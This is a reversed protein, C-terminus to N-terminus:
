RYRPLVNIKIQRRVLHGSEGQKVVFDLNYSGLFGAGLQWYFIGKESDLTSGIPLKTFNFAEGHFHIEIRELERTAIAIIGKRDSSITKFGASEDNGQAVYVSYSHELPLSSFDGKFSFYRSKSSQSRKQSTNDSSTNQVNFYRSGIGDSNGASDKATWQITHIGDSFQTTDLVFYGAAGSSNYYGPFLTEIDSRNINYNPHGVQVGDVYVNLTSGDTLILNPMPTLVWGWNIFSNGSADGGQSPTDIAGFPKIANANDCTITKSGLTVEKGYVDAAIAYIKFTGNGSNPLFNTLMMYGWGAKYNYPYDPYSAEIDPRAGEVFNADGIYVLASGEGHLADRYIKVSDVGVDDLVWGTVAISSMVTSNDIPTDFSGFPAQNQSSNKITLLVNVTQPSDIALPDTVTIAAKYTGASLGTPDVTVTVVSDGTNAAPDFSLWEAEDVASWNLSGTGTNSVRFSQSPPPTQGAIYGFNLKDRSVSLIPTPVFDPVEISITDLPGIVGNDNVAGIKYYVTTAYNFGFDTHTYGTKRTVESSSDATFDPTYGRYIVFEKFDDWDTWLHDLDSWIKSSWSLNTFGSNYAGSFGEVKKPTFMTNVAQRGKNKVADFFQKAATGRNTDKFQYDSSNSDKNRWKFFSIVHPGGNYLKIMQDYITSVSGLSTSVTSPIVEPNYELAAWNGSLSAAGGIGYQTTRSYYTGYNIDYLTVGLGIDSYVDATWMPSSSAYYRANLNPFDAPRKGFLYDGPIQHTFYQDNPFGSTRAIDAMDKVYHYVSLERFTHWLDYFDDTGPEQMVRPPDFGGAIYNSGSSPKLGNYSYQSVPIINPDPNDTDSYDADVLDSLSWNYYRLDWSSFSTGFDANFNALGSAGQYRSGGNEYGEGGYKESDAYLGEHKIWDRFEMVTFPSYDCFYDQLYPSSNLRYYNLESEGPASILILVNPNASQKQALYDFLAEIKANLHGRLKRAYRSFTGFVYKNLISSSAFPQSKAEIDIHDLNLFPLNTQIDEQTFGSAASRQQSSSSINNDNYWQCNRIDEAKADNYDEVTRALGYTLTLHIGVDHQKAFALMQEFEDKFEQIGTDASGLSIYWDMEVRQFTSFCLHAYLGDGFLSKIMDIDSAESSLFNHTMSFVLSNDYTPRPIEECYDYRNFGPLSFILLVMLLIISNKKMDGERKFNKKRLM